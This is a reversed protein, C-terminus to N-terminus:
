VDHNIRQTGETPYEELDVSKDGYYGEDRKIIVRLAKAGFIVCTFAVFGFIGYFGPMDAAHVYEHKEIFFDGILLAACLAALAIFIKNASGPKDVWTLMKGLAPLNEDKAPKHAM